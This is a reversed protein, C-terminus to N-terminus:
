ATINCTKQTCASDSVEDVNWMGPLWPMVSMWSQPSM